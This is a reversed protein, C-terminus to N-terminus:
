QKSLITVIENSFQALYKNVRDMIVSSRDLLVESTELYLETKNIADEITMSTGGILYQYGLQDYLGEFKRSYSFPITAVGSSFAAITSHMRAGIFVDMNSIFSKAEIPNLFVPALHVNYNKSIEKSIKYDDDHANLSLDIVHPILYVSYHEDNAYKKLITTIYEKYDFSLGFQNTEYFGGKWLLGSINIGIKKTKKEVDSPYASKDFPLSFALDTVLSIKKNPIHQKLYKVSMEDRAFVKWANNIVRMASKENDKSKFPGYTQPLLVYKKCLIEAIRKELITHKCAKGAYIDSFSDGMTIDFIYDCKLMARFVSAKLDRLNEYIHSFRLDPFYAKVDNISKDTSIILIEDDRGVYHEIMKLFSYTLAECGKNASKAEFGMLGIKM